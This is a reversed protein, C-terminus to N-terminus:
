PERFEPNYYQRESLPSKRQIGHARKYAEQYGRKGLYKNNYDNYISGSKGADRRIYDYIAGKGGYVSVRVKEYIFRGDKSKFSQVIKGDNAM